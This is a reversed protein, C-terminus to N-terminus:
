RSCDEHLRKLDAMECDFKIKSVECLLGDRESMVQALERQLREIEAYQRGILQNKEAIMSELDADESIVATSLGNNILQMSESVASNTTTEVRQQQQPQQQNHQAKQLLESM